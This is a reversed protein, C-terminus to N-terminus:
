INAETFDKGHHHIIGTSTNFDPITLQRQENLSRYYFVM